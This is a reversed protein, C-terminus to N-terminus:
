GLINLPILGTAVGVIYVLFLGYVSAMIFGDKKSVGNKKLLLSGTTIMSILLFSFIVLNNGFSVVIDKGSILIPFGLCICIDFINSGVANSVAGDADGMSASKVSLLTDPISTCAALIIVSVIITPINFTAAIIIASQVIADCSVWLAAIALAVTIFIQGYSMDEEEEEDEEIAAASENQSRRFNKTQIYLVFVYCVYISMLIIGSLTTFKGSYAMLMLSIVSLSYFFMDRYVVSKEAKLLDKGKYAIISLMPILLVNFIGSGAIAPIGIDAFEKYVLVAVMATSFEPFSSSVADFTAGRVSTPINLKVGLIHLADGLKDSAFNIVWTMAGLMLLAIWINNIWHFM